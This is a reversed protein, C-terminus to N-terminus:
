LCFQKKNQLSEAKQFARSWGGNHIVFEGDNHCIFRLDMLNVFPKVTAESSVYGVNFFCWSVGIFKM